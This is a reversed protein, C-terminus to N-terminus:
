VAGAAPATDVAKPRSKKKRPREFLRAAPGEDEDDCDDGPAIFDRFRAMDREYEADALINPQIDTWFKIRGYIMVAVGLCQSWIPVYSWSVVFIGATLPLHLIAAEKALPWYALIMGMWLSHALVLVELDITSIANDVLAHLVLFMIVWAGVGNLMEGSHIILWAVRNGTLHRLQRRDTFSLYHHLSFPGFLIAEFYLFYKLPNPLPEM